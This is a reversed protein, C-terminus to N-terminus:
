QQYHCTSWYQVSTMNTTLHPRHLFPQQDRSVADYVVVRATAGRRTTRPGEQKVQQENAEERVEETGEMRAEVKKM